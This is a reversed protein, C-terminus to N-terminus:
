WLGYSLMFGRRMHSGSLGLTTIVVLYCEGSENKREVVENWRTTLKKKGYIRDM